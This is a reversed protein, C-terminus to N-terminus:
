LIPPVKYGDYFVDPASKLVKPHGDEDKPDPKAEDERLHLELPIPCTMPEIGNVNVQSIEEVHALIEKLQGTFVKVEEDSLELRALHAIKRTLEQDVTTM